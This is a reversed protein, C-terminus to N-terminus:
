DDDEIALMELEELLNPRESLLELVAAAQGRVGHGQTDALRGILKERLSPPSPESVTLTTEVTVDIPGATLDPMIGQTVFRHSFGHPTEFRVVLTAGVNGSEPLTMGFRVDQRTVKVGSM